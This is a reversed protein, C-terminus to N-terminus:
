EKYLEKQGSFGSFLKVWTRTQHHWRRGEFEKVLLTLHSEVSLAAASIRDAVSLSSIEPLSNVKLMVRPLFFVSFSLFFFFFQTSQLWRQDLHSLFLLGMGFSLLLRHRRMSSCEAFIRTTTPPPPPCLCSACVGVVEPAGLLFILRECRKIKRLWVANHQKTCIFQCNVVKAQYIGWMEMTRDNANEPHWWHCMGHLVNHVSLICRM